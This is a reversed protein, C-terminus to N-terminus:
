NVFIFEKVNFLVHCLDRWAEVDDRGQLFATAQSYEHADPPRGFASVYLTIVRERHNKNRDALVEKAWLEAQQVVFPNNMLALAQGPVNSVSRRGMTTFPIPYDFALFMPTLFNRRVNLYISRRGDGDLPGSTEPRGRGAMHPTLYSAVSPGFMKSDLRGSVALIADRIAEAELRRIPMRHLLKNQADATESTEDCRSAMQYASSLLMMRHMAKISWGQRVFEAALYDLLEPHTPREGLAGFNDPSRVIGAGFHHQWIRNVMVRPLLPNAPDIMRRALELRGSGQQACSQQEGAIAQLFRRPVEEGFRNPNGRIHVHDNWPTGDAMALGRRPLPLSASMAACSDQMAALRHQEATVPAAQGSSDALLRNLVDIRATCDAAQNLKGTRWQDACELVLERLRQAPSEQSANRPDDLIQLLLPNPSEPPSPKDAFLVKDVGLYGPGDDILEIYARHGLWMSVDQAFWKAQDGCNVKITLGGYIPDRILQYGDIILNIQAQSGAAHYLINKRTIVFSKSRLVGQLRGAILGSHAVGAPVIHKVPLCPDNRLLAAPARTPGAGFAEGTASWDHYNGKLFDEFVLATDDYLAGATAQAHGQQVLAPKQEVIQRLHRELREGLNAATVAIALARAHAQLTELRVLARELSEPRDIFARQLRSSQLYGSLAYYDRTTIADFKHDHCRACSVTLGLFTKAFVDIQNDIHDMEDARVDVPSHAAEGLFWFGSGLMSENFGEVPHRRPEPLLDGAVHELVLQDYPLDANFARILYDRYGRAEPIEFDFEHGYTEAYRVLDLWHRGWREGYHASALLRDVVRAFANPARDALFADVEAPTPPLGILDYTVRRILTRRDTAPAPSLGEAELKALIFHDIPSQPWNPQKLSPPSVIRLPQWCWHKMREKLDFADKSRVSTGAVTEPWPAGMKIWAAFDAIQPDTLKSKPPMRLVDDTYRIAKILLSNEPQGPVIAPGSDGGKLLNARSTLQLNGKHKDASHCKQCNEVLIPRIKKEFLEIGDSGADVARATGPM